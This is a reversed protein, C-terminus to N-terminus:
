LKFKSIVEATVEALPKNVDTVFEGSVKHKLKRPLNDKIESFLEQHTGIFIGDLQNIRNAILYDMAKDGVNKLHKRLHDKIHRQIKGPRYGEAKVKQPVDEAVLEEGQNEFDGLFITFFRTKKRDALIVLYRKKLNEEKM